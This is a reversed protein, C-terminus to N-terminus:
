PEVESFNERVFAVTTLITAVDRHVGITGGSRFRSGLGAFHFETM